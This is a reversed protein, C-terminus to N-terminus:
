EDTPNEDAPNEDYRERRTKKIWDVISTKSLGNVAVGNVLIGLSDLRGRAIMAAAYIFDYSRETHANSDFFIAYIDMLHSVFETFFPDSNRGTKKTYKEILLGCTQDIVDLTRGFDELYFNEDFESKAENKIHQFAFSVLESNENYAVIKVLDTNIQEEIKNVGIHHELYNTGVISELKKAFKNTANQIKVFANRMERATRANAYGNIAQLYVNIAYQIRLRAEDPLYTDNGRFAQISSEIQAWEDDGLSVMPFITYSQYIRQTM